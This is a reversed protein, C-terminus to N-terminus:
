LAPTRDYAVLEGSLIVYVLGDAGEISVRAGAYGMLERLWVQNVLDYFWGKSPSTGGALSAAPDRLRRRHRPSPPLVENQQGLGM